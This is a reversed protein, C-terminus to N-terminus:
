TFVGDLAEVVAESMEPLVHSYINATMTISSHGLREQVVKLPVKKQLLLTAHTHRAAHLGMHPLGARKLADNWCRRVVYPSYFTRTRASRFLPGTTFGNASLYLRLTAAVDAPLRVTRRSGATKTAAEKWRGPAVQSLARSVSVTDGVVDEVRLALVEQLRLGSAFMVRWLTLFKDGRAEATALFHKVQEETYAKRGKERRDRPTKTESAPNNPIYRHRVAHKFMDRLAVVAAKITRASLKKRTLYNVFEECHRTDVATLHLRGFHPVIHRNVLSRYGRYTVPAVTSEKMALWARAFKEVTQSREQLSLIPGQEAGLLKQLERKAVAKNAAFITKNYYTRKGDQDRGRFIRVLWKGKGRQIIQGPARAM